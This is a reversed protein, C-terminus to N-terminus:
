KSWEKMQAFLGIPDPDPVFASSREDCAADVSDDDDLSPRSLEIDHQLEEESVRCRNENQMM